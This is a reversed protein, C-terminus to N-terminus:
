IGAREHNHGREGAVVQYKLNKDTTVLVAFGAADADNLLEGNELEQLGRARAETVMHEGLLFRALTRVARSLISFRCALVASYGRV